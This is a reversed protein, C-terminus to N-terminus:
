RASAPAPLAARAAAGHRLVGERVALGVPFWIWCALRFDAHMPLVLMMTGFAMLIATGLYGLQTRNNWTRHIAGLFFGLFCMGPLLGYEAALTLYSSEIYLRVVDPTAKHPGVTGGGSGFPHQLIYKMGDTISQQHSEASQEHGSWTSSVFDGLGLVPISAALVMLGLLAYVLLRKREGSRFALVPIALSAGVIAARTLTCALGCLIIAAPLPNRLYVWWMILAVMCVAGFVLPGATTSAARIGEFGTAYFSDPLVGSQEPVVGPGITAYLLMRPAPGLVFVEIIGAVSLGAAVWVACKAWVQQRDDTLLTVRGVLYPLVFGIDDTLASLNRGFSSRLIVLTFFALLIWDVGVPRFGNQRWLLFTLLLLPIEKTCVSLVTIHPVGYFQGLVIALFHIPMTALVIGLVSLPRRLMAWGLVAVAPAILVIIGAAPGMLVSLLAVLALTFAVISARFGSPCENGVLQVAM